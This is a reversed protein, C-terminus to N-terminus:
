IERRPPLKRKLEDLIEIFKESLSVFANIEAAQIIQKSHKAVNDDMREVLAHIQNVCEQAIDFNTSMGYIYLLLEMIEDQNCEEHMYHENLMRFISKLNPQSEFKAVKFLEKMILKDYGYEVLQSDETRLVSSLLDLGQERDSEEIGNLLKLAKRAQLIINNSDM